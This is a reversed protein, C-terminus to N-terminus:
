SPGGIFGAVAGAGAGIVATGSIVGWKLEAPHKNRNVTHEWAAATLGGAMGTIIASPVPGIRTELNLLVAIGTMWPTATAATNAVDNAWQLM